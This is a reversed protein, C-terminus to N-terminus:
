SHEWTKDIFVKAEEITKFEYRASNGGRFSLSVLITDEESLDLAFNKYEGIITKIKHSM